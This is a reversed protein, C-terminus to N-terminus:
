LLTPKNRLKRNQGMSRHTQKKHWYRATKIVIAKCYIKIDPLMIGEVKNKKRPIVTAIHTRQPEM